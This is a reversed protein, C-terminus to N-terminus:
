TIEPIHDPKFFAEGKNMDVNGILFKMKDDIMKEVEKLTQKSKIELMNDIANHFDLLNYEVTNDPANFVDILHYIAKELDSDEEEIEMQLIDHASIEELKSKLFGEDNYSVKYHDNFIFLYISDKEIVGKGNNGWNFGLDNLKHQVYKSTEKNGLFVKKNILNEKKTIKKM